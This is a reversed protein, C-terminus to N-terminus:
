IGLKKRDENERRKRVRRVEKKREVYKSLNTIGSLVGVIVMFWIIVPWCISIFFWKGADDEEEIDGSLIGAVMSTLAIVGYGILAWWLPNM